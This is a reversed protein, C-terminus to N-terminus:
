RRHKACIRGLEGSLEKAIELELEEIHESHDRSLRLGGQMANVKELTNLASECLENRAAPIVELRARQLLSFALQLSAIVYEGGTANVNLHFSDTQDFQIAVICLVCCPEPM